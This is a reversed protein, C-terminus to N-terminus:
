VIGAAGEPSVAVVVAIAGRCIRYKETLGILQQLEITSQGGEGTLDSDADEGGGSFFPGLWPLTVGLILEALRILNLQRDSQPWAV